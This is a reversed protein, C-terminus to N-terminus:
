FNLRKSAYEFGHYIDLIFSIHPFVCNNGFREMKSM